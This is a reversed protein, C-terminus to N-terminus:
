SVLSVMCHFATCIGRMECLSWGLAGCSGWLFGSCVEPRKSGWGLSTVRRSEAPHHPSTLASLGELCPLCRRSLGHRMVCSCGPGPRVKDPRGMGGKRRGGQSRSHQHCHQRLQPWWCLSFWRPSSCDSVGPSSLWPTLSHTPRCALGYGPTRGQNHILDLVQYAYM